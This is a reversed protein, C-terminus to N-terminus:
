VNLDEPRSDTQPGSCCGSATRERVGYRLRAGREAFRTAFTSISCTNGFRQVVAHQVFIVFVGVLDYSPSPRNQAGKRRALVATSRTLQPGDRGVTLAPEVQIHTITSYSPGTVFQALTRTRQRLGGWPGSIEAAREELSCVAAVRSRM